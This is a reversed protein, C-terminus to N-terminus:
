GFIGAPVYETVEIEVTTLKGKRYLEVTVKEGIKLASMAAAYSSNDTILQGDVTRILDRAKIQENASSTVFVGTTNLSYKSIAEWRDSVYEVEIGLSPRGHIYKSEIIEVFMDYVSDIPIAFGLGEIGEASQKANVIGILEGAMNFLGGGSNGPNVAASTQILTMKNGDISVTRDLASVIGETVTGGLQGLPNGIAVVDEGVLLSDSSGCVVKPFKVDTKVRLMAIDYSPDGDLYEAAIETKDTLTISIERAGEIVHYNTAIYAYEDNQAIVVGSGAGSTVYSGGFFSDTQVTSTTVEVVADAVLTVVETRSLNTYGTSGVNIKVDITGDNKTMNVSSSENSPQNTEDYTPSENSTGVIYGIAGGAIIALVVIVAVAVVALAKVRGRRKKTKATSESGNQSSNSDESHSEPRKGVYERSNEPVMSYMSDSSWSAKGSSNWVYEACDTGDNDGENLHQIEEEAGEEKAVTDKDEVVDVDEKAEDSSGKHSLEKEDIKEIEETNQNNQVDSGEGTVASNENENIKENVLGDSDKYIDKEDM